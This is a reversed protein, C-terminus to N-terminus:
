FELQKYLMDKAIFYETVIKRNQPSDRYYICDVKWSDFDDGLMMSLDYMMQFCFYMVYRYIKRKNPDGKKEIVEDIINEGDSVKFKKERGLISITSLRLQKCEPHLGKEYTSESIFGKVYAIRWYAHDLDTGTIVGREDDYEYNIKASPLKPPSVLDPKGKLWRSVDIDVTRFLFIKNSPFLDSHNFSLKTNQFIIITSETTSRILHPIKKRKLYQIYATPKTFMMKQIKPKFQEV